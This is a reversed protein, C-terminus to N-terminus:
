SPRQLVGVLHSRLAPVAHLVPYGVSTLPGLRRAIPPVLTLARLEATWGSFLEGIRRRSVCHVAGNWPNDYRLDYWILWGGPRLVRSIELAVDSELDASPLSSFLTSAVVVDFSGPPFPLADASGEVFIAWPHAVAATSLSSPDLDVGVWLDIPMAAAGAAGALRGDGCGVDLVRGAGDAPQSQRLLDVLATDRDRLIRAYGRNASDWLRSRGERSYRAYTARIRDLEQDRRTTEPLEPMHRLNGRAIDTSEASTSSDRVCGWIHACSGAAPQFLRRTM